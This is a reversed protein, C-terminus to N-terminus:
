LDYPNNDGSSDFEVGLAELGVKVAEFPLIVLGLGFMFSRAGFGEFESDRKVAEKMLWWSGMLPEDDQEKEM